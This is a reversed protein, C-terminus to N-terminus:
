VIHQPFVRTLQTKSTNQERKARMKSANQEYVKGFHLGLAYTIPTYSKQGRHVLLAWIEILVSFSAVGPIM